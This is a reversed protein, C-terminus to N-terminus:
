EANNINAKRFYFQFILTEIAITAGVIEGALNIIGLGQLVWIAPFVALGAVLALWDRFNEM